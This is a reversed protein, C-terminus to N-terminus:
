LYFDGRPCSFPVRYTAFDRYDVTLVFADRRETVIRVVCADAYDMRPSLHTMAVLMSSADDAFSIVRMPAILRSLARMATADNELIHTAEAICAECTFFTGKHRRLAAVAWEHASEGADIAAALVGSDVVISRPWVAASKSM